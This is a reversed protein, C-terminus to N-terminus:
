NTTTDMLIESSDVETSDISMSTTDEVVTTSDIEETKTTSGNGCASVTVMVILAFIFTYLKM